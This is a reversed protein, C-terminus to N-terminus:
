AEVPRATFKGLPLVLNGPLPRVREFIRPALQVAKAYGGAFMEMKADLNDIYHLAQAEPTKPEIPSGFQKEGHHSLILHLLHFRVDESAPDLTKWADFADGAQLKRWLSNVLEVGIAIHGLLEGREDYGMTFGTEPLANEWLKGCDHFLIGTVLLDANLQPYVGSIALAGRMMQATHEVLGGRRAHHYDRAAATRRFREGFDALFIGCLAHLRPDALADATQVIFAFDAQQRERLAGSGGLLADREGDDLPRCTWRKSEIGFSGNHAFDGVVEVFAGRALTECQAFAPSDSWANLSFKGEADAFVLKFYPKQASTEKQEISDIQAHVRAEVRASKAASRLEAITFLEADM